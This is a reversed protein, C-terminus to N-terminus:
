NDSTVANVTITASATTDVAVLTPRINNVEVAPQAVNVATYNLLTSVDGVLGTRDAFIDSGPRETDVVGNGAATENGAETTNQFDSSQFGNLALVKKVSEVSVVADDSSFISKFLSTDFNLAQNGAILIDGMGELTIDVIIKANNPNNPAGYVTEGEHIAEGIKLERVHGKADKVFFTGQDLSKVYGIVRAM